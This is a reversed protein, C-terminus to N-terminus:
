VEMQNVLPKGAILRAVNNVICLLMQERYYDSEPSCHPSLIINPAGRLPDTPSLPENQFVDLIAGGLEGSKLANILATEDVLEGRSFNVLVATSKLKKLFISDILHRTQETARLGLLVYDWDGVMQPWDDLDFWHHPVLGQPDGTEPTTYTSTQRSGQRGKSAVVTMGLARCLRATERAVAGYGLIGVTKGRLVSATMDTVRDNYWSRSAQYRAIDTFRHAWALMMGLCWEAMPVVGAGGGHTMTWQPLVILESHVHDYGSSLVHVWRLLPFEDPVPFWSQTVLGNLISRNEDRVSEETCDIVRVGTPVMSKLKAVMETGESDIVGLVFPKM